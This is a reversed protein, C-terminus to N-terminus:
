STSRIVKGPNAMWSSESTRITPKSHNRQWRTWQFHNALNLSTDKCLKEYKDVDIESSNLLNSHPDSSSETKNPLLVDFIPLLEASFFCRKSNGDSSTGDNGQQVQEIRVLTKDFVVKFIEDKSNLVFDSCQDEKGFKSWSNWSIGIHSLFKVFWRVGNIYGHVRLPQSCGKSEGDEDCQPSITSRHKKLLNPLSSYDSLRWQNTRYWVLQRSQTWVLCEAGGIGSLGIGSLVKKFKM